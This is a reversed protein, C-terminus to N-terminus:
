SAARWTLLRIAAAGFLLAAAGEVWRRARLYAARAPPAAFLAAYGLYILLGLLSCLAWISWIEAQTSDARVGLAITAGWALLAKPNMGNLMAGRALFRAGEGGSSAAVPAPAANLAARLAGWGLWLLFLAGGIRFILLAPAFASLLPGFGAAALAGWLALSFSLGLSLSAAAGRGAAMATTAVSLTAPGPAACLAFFAAAPALLFAPDGSM